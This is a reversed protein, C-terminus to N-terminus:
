SQAGRPYLLEGKEATARYVGRAREALTEFPPTLHLMFGDAGLRVAASFQEPVLWLAGDGHRYIATDYLTFPALGGGGLAVDVVVPLADRQTQCCRVLAVDLSQEAALTRLEPRFFPPAVCTFSLVAARDEVHLTDSPMGDGAVQVAGLPDGLGALVYGCLVNTLARAPYLLNDM